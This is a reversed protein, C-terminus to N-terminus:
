MSCFSALFPTTKLEPCDRCLLKLNVPGLNERNPKHVAFPRPHYVSEVSFQKAIYAPAVRGNFRPLHRMLWVDENTSHLQYRAQGSEYIELMKKRSRLSLGGNCCKGNPWPAGIFDYELFQFLNYSSNSCLVSDTQFYLIKEGQVQRWFEASTLLLNIYESGTFDLRPFELPTMIIRHNAILPNLISVNYFGWHEVPMVMQVKWDSPIHQLVNQIVRIVDGDIRDDIILAIYPYTSTYNNSLTPNLQTEDHLEDYLSITLLCLIVIFLCTFPKTKLRKHLLFVM